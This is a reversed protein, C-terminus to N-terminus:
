CQPLAPDRRRCIHRWSRGGHYILVSINNELLPELLQDFRRVEDSKFALNVTVNTEVFRRM